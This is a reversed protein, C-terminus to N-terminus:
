SPLAMATKLPVARGTAISETVAAHVEIAHRLEIIGPRPDRSEVIATVFEQLQALMALDGQGTKLAAPHGRTYLLQMNHHDDAYAAGSSGILSLSFYDDRAPLAFAHDLLAMGGTPFGLHIQTYDQSASNPTEAPKRSSAYVLTPLQEFLLCTLDIESLLSRAVTRSPDSEWCHMRLLGLEGLQGKALSEKVTKVSPLFRLLSGWMCQLETQEAATAIEHLAKPSLLASSQLLVHKGAAIARHCDNESATPTAALVFADVMAGHGALLDAVSTSWVDAGLSETMRRAKQADTEVVASFRAGRLRPVLRQYSAAQTPNGILALRLM